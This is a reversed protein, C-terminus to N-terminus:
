SIYEVVIETLGNLDETDVDSQPADFKDVNITIENLIAVEDVKNWGELDIDRCMYRISREMYDTGDTVMYGARHVYFGDTMNAGNADVANVFKRAGFVQTILDEIINCYASSLSIYTIDVVVNYRASPNKNKDLKGNNNPVYEFSHGIGLKSPEVDYINVLINNINKEGSSKYSGPGFVEIIDRTAALALKAANYATSKQEDTGTFTTYDPLYGAAVVKRRLLEFFTDEINTRTFKM